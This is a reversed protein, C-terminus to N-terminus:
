GGDKNIKTVEVSNVRLNCGNHTFSFTVWPLVNEARVFYVHKQSTHAEAEVRTDNIRLVWGVCQANDTVIRYEFLGRFFPVRGVKDRDFVRTTQSTSISYDSNTTKGLVDANYLVGGETIEPGFANYAAVLESDARRCYVTYDPQTVSIADGFRQSSVLSGRRVIEVNDAPCDYLKNVSSQYAKHIENHTTEQASLSFSFCLFFTLIIKKM